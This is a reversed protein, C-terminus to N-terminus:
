LLAPFLPRARYSNLEPIGYFGFGFRGNKGVGLYQGATLVIAATRSLQGRVLLRGTVGGLKMRRERSYAMSQWILDGGDAVRLGEFEDETLDPLYRVRALLYPCAREWTFFDPGIFDGHGPADAPRSFRLPSRFILSFPRGEAALRFLAEAERGDESWPPLSSGASSLPFPYFRGADSSYPWALGTLGLTRGAVFEGEGVGGKFLSDLLRLTLPYNEVQFILRLRKENGTLWPHSGWRDPILASFAAEPNVGAARAALRFLANWRAGPWPPLSKITQLVKFSLDALAIM